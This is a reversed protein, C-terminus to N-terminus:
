LSLTVCYTTFTPLGDISLTVLHPTRKILHKGLKNHCLLKSLEKSWWRGYSENRSSTSSFMKEEYYSIQIKINKPHLLPEIVYNYQNISNRTINGTKHMGQFKLLLRFRNSFWHFTHHESHKKQPDKFQKEVNDGLRMLHQQLLPSMWFNKPKSIFILYSEEEVKGLQISSWKLLQHDLLSVRQLPINLLFNLPCKCHAEIQLVM